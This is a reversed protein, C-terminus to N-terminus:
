TSRRVEVPSPCSAGTLLLFFSAKSGPESRRAWRAVNPDARGSKVLRLETVAATELLNM